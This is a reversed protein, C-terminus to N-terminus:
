KTNEYVKNSVKSVCEKVSVKKLWCDRVVDMYAVVFEDCTDLEVIPLQYSVELCYAWWEPM